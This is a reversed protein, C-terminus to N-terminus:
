LTLIQLKLTLIFRQNTHAVEAITILVYYHKEETSLSAGLPSVKNPPSAFERQSFVPIPRPIEKDRCTCLEGPYEVETGCHGFYVEGKISAM